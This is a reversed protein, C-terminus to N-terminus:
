ECVDTVAVAPGATFVLFGCAVRPLQALCWLVVLVCTYLRLTYRLKVLSRIMYGSFFRTSSLKYQSLWQWHCACKTQRLHDHHIFPGLRQLPLPHPPPPATLIPISEFALCQNVVDKMQRRFAISPTHSPSNPFLDPLKTNWALFSVHAVLGLWWNISVTLQRFQLVSAIWSKEMHHTSARACAERKVLRPQTSNLSDNEPLPPPSHPVASNTWKRAQSKKEKEKEKKKPPPPSPPPIAWLVPFSTWRSCSM